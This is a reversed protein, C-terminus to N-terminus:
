GATGPRPGATRRRRSSRGRVGSVPTRADVRPARSAWARSTGGDLRAQPTDAPTSTREPCSRLAADSGPLVAFIQDLGVIRLIRLIHGPVAALAIEAQATNAHERAAILAAIGSSDCFQMGALDLLLRQGPQLTLTTLVERLETATTHDLEGRIELVTGTTTDRATIELTSM